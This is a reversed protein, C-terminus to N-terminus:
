SKIIITSGIEVCLAKKKNSIKSHTKITHNKSNNTGNGKYYEYYWPTGQLQSSGM